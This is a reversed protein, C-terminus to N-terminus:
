LADQEVRLASVWGIAPAGPDDIHGLKFPPQFGVKTFADAMQQLDTTSYDDGNWTGTRFIPWGEISCAFKKVVPEATAKNAEIARLQANAEAETPHCGLTKTRTKDVVCWENGRKEVFYNHKSSM